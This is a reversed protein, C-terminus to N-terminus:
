ELYRVSTDDDSSAYVLLVINFSTVTELDIEGSTDYYTGGSELLAQKIAAPTMSSTGSVVGPSQSPVSITAYAGEPLGAEEALSKQAGGNDASGIDDHTARYSPLNTPLAADSRADLILAVSMTGTTGQGAVNFSWSGDANLVFNSISMNTIALASVPLLSLSMAIVLVWSLWRKWLKKM